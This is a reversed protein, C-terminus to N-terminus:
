FVFLVGRHSIHGSELPGAKSVIRLWQGDAFHLTLYFDDREFRVIRRDVIKQLSTRDYGIQIDLTDVDGRANRQEVIHECVIFSSDELNIVISFPQLVVDTIRLGSLFKLAELEPFEIM